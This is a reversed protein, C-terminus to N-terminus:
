GSVTVSCAGMIYALLHRPWPFVITFSFGLRLFVNDFEQVSPSLARSGVQCQQTVPPIFNNLKWLQAVQFSPVSVAPTQGLKLPIDACLFSLSRYNSIAIFYNASSVMYIHDVM